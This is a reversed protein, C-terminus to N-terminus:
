TPTSRLTFRDVAFYKEPAVQTDPRVPQSGAHRMRWCKRGEVTPLFNLLQATVRGSAYAASWASDGVSHITFTVTLDTQLGSQTHHDYTGTDHWVNVYLEPDGTVDGEFVVGTLKEDERIKTLVAAVHLEVLDPANM